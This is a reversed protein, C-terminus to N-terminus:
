IDPSCSPKQGVLGFLQLCILKSSKKVEKYQYGKFQSCHLANQSIYNVGKSKKEKKWSFM